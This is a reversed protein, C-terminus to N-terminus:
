RLAKYASFALAQGDGNFQQLVRRQEEEVFYTQLHLSRDGLTSSTRTNRRLGGRAQVAGGRQRQDLAQLGQDRGAVDRDDGRQV